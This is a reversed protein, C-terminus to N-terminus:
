WNHTMEKAFTIIYSHEFEFNPSVGFYKSSLFLDSNKLNSIIYKSEQKPESQKPQSTSPQQTQLHQQPNEKPQQGLPGAAESKKNEIASREINEVSNWLM